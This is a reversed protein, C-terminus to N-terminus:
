VKEIWALVHTRLWPLSNFLTYAAPHIRCVRRSIPPALTLRQSKFRGAPFLERVRRLSVGRVDANRPNDFTFDYWIIAGGPRLWEWMRSALRQQFSDDLISTFVTSQYVLDFSGPAFPLALADGEVVRVAAPLAHRALAARDPLLENGVLRSADFGLRLLELLNPGAGCGIELVDLSALPRGHFALYSLLARQREQMTQWVDPRLPDYRQRLNPDRRAYRDVVARAESEDSDKPLPM